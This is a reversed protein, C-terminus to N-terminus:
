FLIFFTKWTNLLLYDNPHCILRQLFILHSDKFRKNDDNVNQSISDNKNNNMHTKVSRSCNRIDIFEFKRSRRVHWQTNTRTSLFQHINYNVLKLLSPYHLLKRTIIFNFHELM